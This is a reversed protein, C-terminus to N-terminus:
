RFYVSFVSEAQPAATFKCKKTGRCAASFGGSLPEAGSGWPFAEGESRGSPGEDM